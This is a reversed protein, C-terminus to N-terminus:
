VMVGVLASPQAPLGNVAVTSTCESGTPTAVGALWVTHESSAIVVITREVLLPMSTPVVYAHVLSLVILTVPSAALPVPSILPVGLLTVPV